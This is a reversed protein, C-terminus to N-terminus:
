RPHARALFDNTRRRRPGDQLFEAESTGFTKRRRTWSILSTAELNHLELSKAAKAESIVPHFLSQPPTIVVPKEHVSEPLWRVKNNVTPRARRQFRCGKGSM